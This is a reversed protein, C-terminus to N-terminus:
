DGRAEHHGLCLPAYSRPEVSNRQHLGGLGRDMSLSHAQGLELRLRTLFNDLGFTESITTHLRDIEIQTGIEEPAVEVLGEEETEFEFHWDDARETDGNAGALRGYRRGM